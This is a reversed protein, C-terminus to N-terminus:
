DPLSMRAALFELVISDEEHLVSLLHDYVVRRTQVDESTCVPAKLYRSLAVSVERRASALTTEDATNEDESEILVRELARFVAEVCASIAPSIGASSRM